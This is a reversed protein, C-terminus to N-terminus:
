WTWVENHSTDAFFEEMIFPFLLDPAPQARHNRISDDINYDFDPSQWSIGSLPGYSFGNGYSNRVTELGPLTGEQFVESNSIDKKEVFYPTFGLLFDASATYVRTYELARASGIGPLSGLEVSFEGKVGRTDASYRYFSWDHGDLYSAFSDDYETGDYYLAVGIGFAGGLAFTYEGRFGFTLTQRVGQANRVM